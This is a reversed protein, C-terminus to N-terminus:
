SRNVVPQHGSKASLPCQGVRKLGYIRGVSLKQTDSHGSVVRLPCEYELVRGDEALRGGLRPLVPVVEFM